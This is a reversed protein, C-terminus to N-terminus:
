FAISIAVRDRDKTGLDTDADADADADANKAMSLLHSAWFTRESRHMLRLLKLKRFSSRLVTQQRHYSAALITGAPAQSGPARLMRRIARFHRLKILTRWVRRLFVGKRKAQKSWITYRRWVYLPWFSQRFYERKRQARHYAMKWHVFRRRLSVIAQMRRCHNHWARLAAMARHKMHDKHFLKARRLLLAARFRRRGTAGRLLRQIDVAAAQRAIGTLMKLYQVGKRGGLAENAEKENMVIMPGDRSATAGRGGAQGESGNEFIGMLRNTTQALGDELDALTVSMRRGQQSLQRLM